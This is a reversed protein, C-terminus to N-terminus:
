EALTDIGATLPTTVGAITLSGGQTDRNFTVTIQQGSALNVTVGPQATTGASLTSSVAGDVSLVHLYRQDGGAVREDLRFGGNFDADATFNYTSMTAASPAIRTLKLTHGANTITATNGSIAPATPAALQWTQTTTSSSQVRDFVIAVNPQVYVLERQVKQIAANGRYAPTVDAAMYTFNSGKKLAMVTSTTSAIQPIPVGANDIRVLSHATTAQALGSHSNINADYALWGGKFIMLSGQDQHAHSQTYPGAILNIWTAATDWGSRAYIEGIGKAQYVTNLGTLPTTPISPSDNLFDQVVMFGNGMTKVSSNAILYKARAALSDTPFSAMLQQFYDRHYDFFSATSDRSQDGTPAVRDITPLTQHIMALMSARTHPTKTALVEGTTSKWFDYLEFLRRMAVGYGTGERSAGGILDANFTPVLEGIIKADHFKSVWTDAPANEGKTALGLLMTARLFSYYYNDSPDDIAWGSWPVTKTGWKATTYNWVNSVAQNAYAIWRTRQAATVQPYCWDYVLAVNGIMDGINLYSDAAVDPVAGAAIKAEAAAVQAEVNAVAKTCYTVTGTLQGLLAANWAQFNYVDSGNVWSTVTNRFRTAPATNSDLAAKLRTRNPTLYIRPHATPYVPDGTLAAEAVATDGEESPPAKDSDDVVCSTGTAVLGLLIATTFNNRAMAGM